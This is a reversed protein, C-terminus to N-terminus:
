RDSEQAHPESGFIKRLAPGIRGDVIGTELEPAIVRAVAIPLDAPSLDVAVVQSVGVGRVAETLARLERALDRCSRDALDGLEVAPASADFYWRGHPLSSRRRGHNGYCTRPDDELLMDERAGQFDVIRGQIAETIARSAAHEPSWSCGLGMHALPPDADFQRISAIACIPLSPEELALVRLGLGAAAIERVLGDLRPRGTPLQIERVVTDDVFTSFDPETGLRRALAEVLYKPRLHAKAHTLSWIHREVLEFLAHYVAETLNNGSALGNSSSTGFTRAGNWPCRVLALPVPVIQGSSLDTGAIFPCPREWAEDVLGLGRLDLGGEVDCPRLDLAPPDFQACIQREMAEMVASAMAHERTPGKGSYNSIVDDSDPVIACITPIAIRDLRTPDSMRTIGYRRRLEPVLALTKELSVSRDYSGPTKPLTRFLREVDIP